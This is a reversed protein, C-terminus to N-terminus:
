HSVALVSNYATDLGILMLIAASKEFEGENHIVEHAIRLGLKEMTNKRPGFVSDVLQTLPFKNAERIHGQKTLEFLFKMSDRFAARRKLLKTEDANYSLFVQCNTIHQYIENESYKAKMNGPNRIQHSFGLFDGVYRTIIPIAFSDLDTFSGM